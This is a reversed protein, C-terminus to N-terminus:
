VRDKICGPAVGVNRELVAIRFGLTKPPSDIKRGVSGAGGRTLVFRDDSVQRALLVILVLLSPTQLFEKSFERCSMVVSLAKLAEQSGRELLGRRSFLLTPTGHRQLEDM